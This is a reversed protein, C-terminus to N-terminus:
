YLIHLFSHLLPMHSAFILSDKSQFMDVMDAQHNDNLKTSFFVNVIITNFLNQLMCGDNMNFFLFVFTM